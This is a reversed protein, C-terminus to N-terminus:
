KGAGSSSNTWMKGYIPEQIEKKIYIKFNKHMSKQIMLTKRKLTYFVYKIRKEVNGM